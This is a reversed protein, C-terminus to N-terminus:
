FERQPRPRIKMLRNDQIIEFLSYPIQQQSSINYNMGTYLTMSMKYSVFNNNLPFDTDSNWSLNKTDPPLDREAVTKRKVQVWIRCNQHADSKHGKWDTKHGHQINFAAYTPTFRGPDYGTCSSGGDGDGHNDDFPARAQAEYDIVWHDAIEQPTLSYGTPFRNDKGRGGVTIPGITKREWDEDRVTQTFTVVGPITPLTRIEITRDRTIKEERSLPNLSGSKLYDYELTFDTTKAQNESVSLMSRSVEFGIDNDGFKKIKIDGKPDVIRPNANAIGTGIIRVSVTQGNNPTLVAPWYFTVQPERSAMPLRDIVGGAAAMTRQIDVYAVAESKELRVAINNINTFTDRTTQDLRDFATNILSTNAKKWEAIIKLAQEAFAAAVADGTERARRAADNVSKEVGLIDLPTDAFALSSNIAMLILAVAMSQSKM